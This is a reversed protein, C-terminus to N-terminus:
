AVLPSPKNVPTCSTSIIFSVPLFNDSSVSSIVILVCTNFFTFTFSLDSVNCAGCNFSTTFFTSAASPSVPRTKTREDPVSDNTRTITSASVFSNHLSYTSSIVATISCICIPLADHLSLTYFHITVPNNLSFHPFSTSSDHPS